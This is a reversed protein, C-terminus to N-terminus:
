RGIRVRRTTLAIRDLRLVRHGSLADRVVTALSRVSVVPSRRPM